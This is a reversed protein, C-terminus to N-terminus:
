RSYPMYRGEDIREGSRNFVAGPFRDFDHKDEARCRACTSNKDGNPDSDCGLLPEGCDICEDM